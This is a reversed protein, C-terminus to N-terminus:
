CSIWRIWRSRRVGPLEPDICYAIRRVGDSDYYHVVNYTVYTWIRGNHFQITYYGIDSKELYPSDGIGTAFVQIIQTPLVLMVLMTLAVVKKLKGKM